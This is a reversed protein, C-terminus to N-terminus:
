ETVEAEPMDALPPGALGELAERVLGELTAMDDLTLHPLVQKARSPIAMLKSKCEVFVTVMRQEVDRAPILERAAVRYKLEKLNADWHKVRVSEDAVTLPEVEPDLASPITRRRDNPPQRAMLADVRAEVEPDTPLLSGLMATEAAPRQAKASLVIGGAAREKAREKVYAPAKTLDTNQDWERDALDPDSIKPQGWEDRGVSAVLRGVKIATSVAM